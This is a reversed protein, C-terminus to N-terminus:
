QQMKIVDGHIDAEGPLAVHYNVAKRTMLHKWFVAVSRARQRWGPRKVVATLLRLSSVLFILRRRVITGNHRVGAFPVCSLWPLGFRALIAYIDDEYRKGGIFGNASKSAGVARTHRVVVDDIVAFDQPSTAVLNCWILDIGSEYGMTYLARIAQFADKRFVPCMMEIYNIYRLRFTPDRLLCAYTFHSDHTLAPQAIKLAYSAATHFMKTLNTSDIRLDDDFLAVYEYQAILHAHAEFVAAYGAVKTGTRYEFFVGEERPDCADDHYASLLM